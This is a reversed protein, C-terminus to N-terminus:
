KDYKSSFRERNNEEQNEIYDQFEKKTEESYLKKTLDAILLSGDPQSFTSFIYTEGVEPLGDDVIIDGTNLILTGDKRYGGHYKAEVDVVLEGKLNELVEIQYITDPKDDNVINSVKKVVKGVFVNDVAGTRIYLNDENNISVYNYEVKGNPKIEQNQCASLICCLTFLIGFVILPIWKNILKM